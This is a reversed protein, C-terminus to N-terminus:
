PGKRGRLQELYQIDIIDKPRSGCRKTTILDDLLFEEDSLEASCV